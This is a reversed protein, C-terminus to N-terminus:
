QGQEGFRVAEQEALRGAELESALRADEQGAMRLEDAAKKVKEADRAVEAM